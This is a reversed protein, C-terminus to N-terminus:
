ADAHVCMCIFTGTCELTCTHTHTRACVSLCVCLYGGLGLNTHTFLKRPNLHIRKYLPREPVMETENFLPFLQAPHPLTCIYTRCKSQWQNFVTLSPQSHLETSAQIGLAVTSQATNSEESEGSFWQAEQLHLPQSLSPLM